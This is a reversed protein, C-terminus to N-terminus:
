NLCHWYVGPERMNYRLYNALVLFFRFIEKPREVHTPQPKPLVPM